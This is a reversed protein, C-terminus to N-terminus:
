QNSGGNGQIEYADALNREITSYPASITIM